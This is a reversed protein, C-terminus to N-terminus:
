AHVNESQEIVLLNKMFLYDLFLLTMICSYLFSDMHILVTVCYMKITKYDICTEWVHKSTYITGVYSPFFWDVIFSIKDVPFAVM